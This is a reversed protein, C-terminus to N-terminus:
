TVKSIMGDVIHYALDFFEVGGKEVILDESLGRRYVIM